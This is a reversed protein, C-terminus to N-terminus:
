PNQSPDAGRIKQSRARSILQTLVMMEVAGPVIIDGIVFTPTGNIGLRDALLLTERVQKLIEPSQSDKKLRVMNLGTSSALTYMLGESLPQEASFFANHLASFKGQKNAALVLQAAVLSIPPENPEDRVPYQKMVVRLNPDSTILWEIQPHMKRCYPCRYDYFEVLTIDGNPNGMVVSSPDNFLLEYNNLITKRNNELTERETREKLVGIAEMIIEPNQILYEKIITEVQTRSLEEAVSLVSNLASFM